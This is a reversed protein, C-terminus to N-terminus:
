EAHELIIGNVKSNVEKYVEHGLQSLETGGVTCSFINVIEETEPNICIYSLHINLGASIYVTKGDTEFGYSFNKGKKLAQEVIDAKCLQKELLARYFKNMDSLSSIMGSTSYLYDFNCMLTYDSQGVWKNTTLNYGFMENDPSVFGTNKLGLKDFINKELYEEYSMGSAKEIIRGLIYYNSKAIDSSSIGKNIIHEEIMEKIENGANKKKSDGKRVLKNWVKEDSHMETPYNGLSVSMNLLDKVSIESLYAHNSSDYFNSLSDDLSLKGQEDLQHIAVATFVMTASNLLFQSDENVSDGKKNIHGYYKEFVTNENLMVAIGGYFKEGELLAEVEDDIADTQDESLVIKKVDFEEKEECGAFCSIMLLAALAVCIISKMMKFKGM